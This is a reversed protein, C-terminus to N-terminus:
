KLILLFIQLLHQYYSFHGPTIDSRAATLGSGPRLTPHPSLNRSWFLSPSMLGPSESVIHVTDLDPCQGTVGAWVLSLLDNSIVAWSTENDRLMKDVLVPHRIRKFTLEHKSRTNFKQIDIHFKSYKKRKCFVMITLKNVSNSSYIKNVRHVLLIEASQRNPHTQCSQFLFTLIKFYNVSKNASQCSFSTKRLDQTPM